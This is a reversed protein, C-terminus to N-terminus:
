CMLWEAHLKEDRDSRHEQVSRCTQSMKQVLVSNQVERKQILEETSYPTANLHQQLVPYFIYLHSPDRGRRKKKRGGTRGGKEEEKVWCCLGGGRDKEQNKSGSNNM